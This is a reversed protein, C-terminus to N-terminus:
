ERERVRSEKLRVLMGFVDIKKLTSYTLAAYVVTLNVTVCVLIQLVCVQCILVASSESAPQVVCWLSSPSPM